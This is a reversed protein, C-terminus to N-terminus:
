KDNSSDVNKNKSPQKDHLDLLECFSAFFLATERNFTSSSELTAVFNLMNLFQDEPEYEILKQEFGHASILCTASVDVGKSFIRDFRYTAKDTKIELFNEYNFGIGWKARCEVSNASFGAEGFIDVEYKESFDICHNVLRLSPFIHKLISIPYYGVDYLAGGLLDKKYRINDRHLEPVCFCAEISVIDKIETTNLLQKLSAFQEHHTYMDVIHLILGKEEALNFLREGAKSDVTLPKEVIANKGHNLALKTYQVHSSLPSAIYIWDAEDSFMGDLPYSIGYPTTKGVSRSYIRNLSFVKSKEIAPIINKQAHSGFGVLSIQQNM